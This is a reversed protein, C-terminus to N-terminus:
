GRIIFTNTTSNVAVIPTYEVRMGVIKYYRYKTCLNVWEDADSIRAYSNALVDRSGWQSTFAALNYGLGANVTYTFNTVDVIKVYNIGDYRSKKRKFNMQKKISRSSKRYSKRYPM